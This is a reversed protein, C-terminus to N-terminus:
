SAVSVAHRRGPCVRPLPLPHFAEAGIDAWLQPGWHRREDAAGFAMAHQRMVRAGECLMKPLIHALIVDWFCDYSALVRIVM